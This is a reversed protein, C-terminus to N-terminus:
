GVVKIETIHSKYFHYRGKLASIMYGAHITSRELVGSVERGNRYTIKVVKGLLAELADCIHSKKNNAM